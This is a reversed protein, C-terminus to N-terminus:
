HFLYKITVLKVNSSFSRHVLKNGFLRYPGIENENKESNLKLLM